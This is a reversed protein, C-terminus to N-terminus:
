GSGTDISDDEKSRKTTEIEVSKYAKYIKGDDGIVDIKEKFDHLHNYFDQKISNIRSYLYKLLQIYEKLKKPDLTVILVIFVVLIESISIGFM